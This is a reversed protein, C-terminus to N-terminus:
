TSFFFVYWLRMFAASAARIASVTRYPVKTGSRWSLEVYQLWGAGYERARWFLVVRRFSVDLYVEVDCLLFLFLGVGIPISGVIKAMDM